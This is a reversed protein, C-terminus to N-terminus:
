VGNLESIVEGAVMRLSSGIHVICGIGHGIDVRETCAIAAADDFMRHRCVVVEM